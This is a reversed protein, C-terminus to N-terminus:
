LIGFINGTGTGNRNRLGGTYVYVDRIKYIRIRYIGDLTTEM